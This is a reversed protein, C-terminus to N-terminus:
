TGLELQCVWCIAVYASECGVWALQQVGVAHSWVFARNHIPIDLKDLTRLYSGLLIEWRSICTIEAQLTRNRLKWPSSHSYRRHLFHLKLKNHLLLRITLCTPGRNRLDCLQCSSQRYIMIFSAERLDNSCPPLAEELIAISRLARNGATPKKISPALGRITTSIQFHRRSWGKCNTNPITHLRVLSGFNADLARIANLVHSYVIIRHSLCAGTELNKWCPLLELSWSEVPCCSWRWNGDAVAPASEDGVRLGLETADSGTLEQVRVALGQEM